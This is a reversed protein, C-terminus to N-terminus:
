DGPIMREAISVGERSSIKVVNGNVELDYYQSDFCSQINNVADRILASESTDDDKDYCARGIEGYVYGDFLYERNVLTDGNSEKTSHVRASVEADEEHNLRMAVIGGLDELTGM